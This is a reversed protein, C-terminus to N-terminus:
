HRSVRYALLVASVLMSHVTPEIDPYEIPWYPHNNAEIFQIKFDATVLFDLGLLQFTGPIRRYIGQGADCLLAIM